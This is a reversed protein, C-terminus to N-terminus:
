TLEIAGRGVRRPSSWTARPLRPPKLIKELTDTSSFRLPLDVPTGLTARPRQRPSRGYSPRGAKNRAAVSTGISAERGAAFAASPRVASTSRRPAVSGVERGALVFAQRCAVNQPRNLNQTYATVLTPFLVSRGLAVISRSRGPPPTGMFEPWHSRAHPDPQMPAIDNFFEGGVRLICDTTVPRLRSPCM